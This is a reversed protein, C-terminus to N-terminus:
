KVLKARGWAGRDGSNRAGGNWMFQRRGATADNLGIDFLLEQNERPTFGLGAFPIAAEITYGDNGVNKVVEMKVESQAPANNFYWRYGDAGKHASLLVQRDGFQMPGDEALKDAGIFLEISDAAWIADPPNDNQM